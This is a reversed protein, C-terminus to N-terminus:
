SENWNVQKVFEKFKFKNFDIQLASFINSQSIIAKKFQTLKQEIAHKVKEDGSNGDPYTNTSTYLFFLRLFSDRNHLEIKWKKDIYEKVVDLGFIRDRIENKKVSSLGRFDILQQPVELRNERPQLNSIESYIDLAQLSM